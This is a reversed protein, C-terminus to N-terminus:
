GSRWSPVGRQDMYFKNQHMIHPISGIKVKEMHNALQGVM